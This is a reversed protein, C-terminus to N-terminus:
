SPSPPRWERAASAVGRALRLWRRAAAVDGYREMLGAVDEAIGAADAFRLSRLAHDWAASRLALAGHRCGDAEADEAAAVLLPLTEDWTRARLLRRLPTREPWSWPTRRLYGSATARAHALFAADSERDWALRCARLAAYRALIRCTAGPKLAFRLDRLALEAPFREPGGAEPSYAARNDRVTPSDADLRYMVWLDAPPGPSAMAPHSVKM